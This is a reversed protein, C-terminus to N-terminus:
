NNRKLWKALTGTLSHETTQLRDCGSTPTDIMEKQSMINMHYIPQFEACLSQKFIDGQKRVDSFHLRVRTPLRGPLRYLARYLLGLGTQSKIDGHPFLALPYICYQLTSKISNLGWDSTPKPICLHNHVVEIMEYQTWQRDPRMGSDEDASFRTWVGRFEEMAIECVLMPTDKYGYSREMDGDRQM